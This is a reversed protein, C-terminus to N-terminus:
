SITVAHVTTMLGEEIGYTDHLVKAVPALCNTTCSANSVVNWETNYTEENCGMVILPTSDKPPASLVVKKAGGKLHGNAKETTLFAGTCDAIYEAGADGWQLAAPDVEHFVRVFHGDVTLGKDDWTIEAPFRGHCSDYKM